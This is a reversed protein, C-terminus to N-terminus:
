DWAAPQNSDLQLVGIARGEALLPVGCYSRVGDPSLSAKPPPPPLADIAHIDPLYIPRETLVIRGAVTSDLPIRVDFLEDAAAPDAAALRIWGEDDVLQISGGTFAILTRLETLTAALVDALDLRGTVTRALSSILEHRADLPRAPPPDAPAAGRPRPSPFSTGDATRTRESQEDSGTMRAAREM